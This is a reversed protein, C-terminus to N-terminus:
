PLCASTTAGDGFGFGYLATLLAIGLVVRYAAFPAFSARALWRMMAAIALLATLFSLGAAIAAAMTLQANGSRVLDLGALAAAGLIVPIAMLLSFRAAESREFGLMRAATMTIGSRSTGPILALTQACGIFLARGCTMHEIRFERRGWRDAMWLLIGFGLTTWGIVALSRFDFGLQTKLVFGAALAPISAILIHIASQAAATRKGLVAEGIGRGLGLCDRWFYITVALLTGLHVGVDIVLGQDCWGTMRPVLILHAQSSIPLFETVGQVLAITVLQLVNV